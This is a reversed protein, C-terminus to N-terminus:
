SVGLRFLDTDEPPRMPAPEPTPPVDSFPGRGTLPRAGPLGTDGFIKAALADRRKLLEGHLALMEDISQEQGITPLGMGLSRMEDRRANAMAQRNAWAVMPPAQYTLKGTEDYTYGLQAALQEYLQRKYM